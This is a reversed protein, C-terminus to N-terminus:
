IRNMKTKQFVQSFLVLSLPPYSFNIGTQLRAMDKRSRSFSRSFVDSRFPPPIIENSRSRTVKRTSTTTGATTTASTTLTTEEVSFNEAESCPDAEDGCQRRFIWVFDVSDDKEMWRIYAGVLERAPKKGRAREIPNFIKSLPDFFFSLNEERDNKEFKSPWM